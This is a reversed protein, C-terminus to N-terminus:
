AEQTVRLYRRPAIQTKGDAKIVAVGHSMMRVVTYVPSTSGAVLVRDGTRIRQEIKM